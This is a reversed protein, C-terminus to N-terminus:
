GRSRSLELCLLEQRNVADDPIQEVESTVLQTWRVVSQQPLAGEFVPTRGRSDQAIGTAGEILTAGIEGLQCYRRFANEIPLTRVWGGV